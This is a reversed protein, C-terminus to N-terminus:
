KIYKRVYWEAAGQHLFDYGEPGNPICNSASYCVEMIRLKKMAEALNWVFSQNCLVFKCFRIAYALELFNDVILLPIDLGNQYCFVDREEKLGAFILKSEWEKLFSYSINPNRYRSTFNVLVHDEVILNQWNVPSDIPPLAIWPKSLDCALEPRVYWGWRHISGFGGTAYNDTQVIDLDIDIEQGEYPEFSEIYEQSLLLPKLFDFQKQNMCVMQGEDNKIPHQAGQYYHVRRNLTQYIKAKKGIKEYVHKMGPLDSMLDGANISHKYRVFEM